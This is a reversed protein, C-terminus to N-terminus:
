RRLLGRIVGITFIAVLPWRRCGLLWLSGIAVVALLFVARDPGLWVCLTLFTVATVGLLEKSKRIRVPAPRNANM